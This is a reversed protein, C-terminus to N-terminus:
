SGATAALIALGFPAIGLSVDGGFSVMSIMFAIIYIIINQRTFARKFFMGIEENKLKLDKYHSDKENVGNAINQFM